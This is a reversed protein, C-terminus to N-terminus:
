RRRKVSRWGTSEMIRWYHYHLKGQARLRAHIRPIGDDDITTVRSPWKRKLMSKMFAVSDPLVHYGTRSWEDPITVFRILDGVKLTKPDPM